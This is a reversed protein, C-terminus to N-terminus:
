RRQLRSWRNVMGGWGDLLGGGAALVMGGWGKPRSRGYRVLRSFKRQPEFSTPSFTAVPRDDALTARMAFPCWPGVRMGSQATARARLGTGNGDSRLHKVPRRRVSQFPFPGIPLFCTRRTGRTSQEPNHGIGPTGPCAWTQHCLPESSITCSFAKGRGWGRLFHRAPSGVARWRRRQRECCRLRM